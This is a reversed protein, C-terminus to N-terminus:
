IDRRARCSPSRPVWTSLDFPARVDVRSMWPLRWTLTLKGETHTDRDDSATPKLGVALALGVRQKVSVRVIPM